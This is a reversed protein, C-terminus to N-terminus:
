VRRRAALGVLGIGLLLATSPEPVAEMSLDDLAFDNGYGGENLNLVRVQISSNAGSNFVVAQRLWVGVTMPAMFVATSNGNVQFDLLASNAGYWTSLFTSFVYNTDPVVSISQSWVVTSSTPSANVAMMRGSGTTHDGYSSALQHVLAPNTTIAYTTEPWWLSSSYNHGSLFGSNGAEFDGNVILNSSAGSSWGLGVCLGVVLLGLRRM